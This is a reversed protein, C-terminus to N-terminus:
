FLSILEPNFYDSSVVIIPCEHMGTTKAIDEPTMLETYENTEMENKMLDYVIKQTQPPYNDLVFDKGDVFVAGFFKPYNPNNNVNYISVVCGNWSGPETGKKRYGSMIVSKTDSGNNTTLLNGM